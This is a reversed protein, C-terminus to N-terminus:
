VEMLIRVHFMGNRFETMIQAQEIPVPFEFGREFESYSIEMSKLRLGREAEFDFRRGAICLFNGSVRIHLDESRIGALELKILWGNEGEYVDAAPQWRLPQINKETTFRLRRTLIFLDNSFYM